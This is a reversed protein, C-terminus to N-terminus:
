SFDLNESNETLKQCTWIKKMNAIFVLYLALDFPERDPAKSLSDRGNEVLPGGAFVM